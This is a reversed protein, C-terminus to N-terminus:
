KKLNILWSMVEELVTTNLSYKIFQADKEMTVLNAEKLLTLHHSITAKTVDFCDAIEGANMDRQRLLHLIERRIPDNLARFVQNM